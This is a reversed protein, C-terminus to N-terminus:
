HTPALVDLDTSFDEINLLDDLPDLRDPVLNAAIAASDEDSSHVSEEIAEKSANVLKTALIPTPPKASINAEHYHIRRSHPQSSRAQITPPLYRLWDGYQLKTEPTLKETPCAHVLHGILGCGYCLTPLREYQLMCCKKSTGAGGIFVCRHIPSIINISCGVRLYTTMNGEIRRTDIKTVTGILSVLSSGIQIDMSDSQMLVSPIDHIRVWVNMTNFTHNQASLTPDFSALALWDDKFLWPGINLIEHCKSANEFHIRFFKACIPSISILHDKKWINTYARIFLRKDVDKTAFLKGILFVAPDISLINWVVLPTFISGQEEHTLDLDEFQSQPINSAM